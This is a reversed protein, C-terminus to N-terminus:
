YRLLVGQFCLSQSTVTRGTEKDTFACYYARFVFPNLRHLAQTSRREDRRLLVGQFCLSQSAQRACPKVASKACYYARFVFPNLGEGKMLYTFFVGRLLVGQFCLSQSAAEPASDDRRIRLLVGQFCLSQSQVCVASIVNAGGCYYARFVFPNLSITAM